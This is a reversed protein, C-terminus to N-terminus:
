VAIAGMTVRTFRRKMLKRSTRPCGNLESSGDGCPFFTSAGLAPTCSVLDYGGLFLGEPATRVHGSTLSVHLINSPLFVSFLNSRCGGRSRLPPLFRGPLILVTEPPLPCCLRDRSWVKFPSTTPPVVAAYGFSRLPFRMLAFALFLFM